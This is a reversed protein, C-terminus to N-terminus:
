SVVEPEPQAKPPKNLNVLLVSALILGGGIYQVVQLQDGLVLAAAILTAPPGASQILSARFAPIYNMGALLAAIGIVTGFVAIGLVPGWAAMPPVHVGAFLGIVLLTGLAGTIVFIGTTIGPIHKALKGALMVYLAIFAANILPLMLQSATAGSLDGELALASGLLAMGVAIWSSLPIHEGLLASGVAIMAPSSNVLLTYTSAPLTTGLSFFATLASGTFVVGLMLMIAYDRRQLNALGASKRWIPFSAWFIAAAVVFRWLALDFPQIGAALAMKAFISFFAYGATSLLVLLMGTLDRNM